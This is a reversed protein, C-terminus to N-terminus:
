AKREIIKPMVNGRLTNFLCYVSFASGYFLVYSPIEQVFMVPSSLSRRWYTNMVYFVRSASLFSLILVLPFLSYRKTFNNNNNETQEFSKKILFIAPFFPFPLITTTHRTLVTRHFAVIGVEMLILMSFLVAECKSSRFLHYFGTLSLLLIPSIIFLGPTNNEIGKSWDFIVEKNLFNTFLRDLGVIPNGSLSTLFSREEPFIPNYKNSKITLENFAIFNYVLLSSFIAIFVLAALLLPPVTNRIDIKRSLLIYLGFAGVFLINQIETISALPLLASIAMIHEACSPDIHKVTIALYVAGLVTAMSMAHSFLHTSEFWTLTGFAFIFSSFLSTRFGFGFSMSIKFM